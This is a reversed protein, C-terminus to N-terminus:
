ERNLSLVVRVIQVFGAAAGVLLGAIYIWHRHLWSDLGLGIVWGVVTALPLLMALQILSAARALSGSGAGGPTMKPESRRQPM